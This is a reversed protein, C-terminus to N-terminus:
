AILITGEKPSSLFYDSSDNKETKQSLHLIGTWFFQLTFIREWELVSQSANTVPKIHIRRSKKRQMYFWRFIYVCTCAFLHICHLVVVFHYFFQAPGSSLPDMKRSTLFWLPNETSSVSRTESPAYNPSFIHSPHACTHPWLLLHACTNSLPWPALLTKTHPLPLLHSPCTLVLCCPGQLDHWTM